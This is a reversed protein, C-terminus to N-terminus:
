AEADLEEEDLFGLGSDYRRRKKAGSSASAGSSRRALDGSLFAGPRIVSVPMGERTGERPAAAAGEKELAAPALFERSMRVVRELEAKM